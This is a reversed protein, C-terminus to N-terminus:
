RTSTALVIPAHIRDAEPCTGNRRSFHTIGGRSSASRTPSPTSHRPTVGSTPQPRPSRAPRARESSRKGSGGTPWTPGPLTPSCRIPPQRQRCRMAPAVPNFSTGTRPGLRHTVWPLGASRLSGEIASALQTGLRHTHAYADDTPHAGPSRAGRGYFGSQRVLNRRHGSTPSWRGPKGGGIASCGVDHDDRLCGNTDRWCGSEEDDRHGSGPWAM